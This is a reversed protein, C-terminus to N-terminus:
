TSFVDSFREFNDSSRFNPYTERVWVCSRGQVGWCAYVLAWRGSRKWRGRYNRCSVCISVTATRKSGSMVTYEFWGSRKMAAFVRTGSPGRPDSAKLGRIVVPMLFPQRAAQLYRIVEVSYFGRDLLVLRTEVGVSRAQKLLRQLVNKM